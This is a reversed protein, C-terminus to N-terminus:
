FAPSKEDGGYRTTPAPEVFQYLIGSCGDLRDGIARAAARALDVHCDREGEKGGIEDLCRDFTSQRVAHSQRAEAFEGRLPRTLVAYETKGHGFGPRRVSDGCVRDVNGLFRSKSHPSLSDLNAAKGFKTEASVCGCVM